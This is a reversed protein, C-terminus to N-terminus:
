FNGAGECPIATTNKFKVKPTERTIRFRPNTMGAGVGGHQFKQRWFIEFIRQAQRLTM